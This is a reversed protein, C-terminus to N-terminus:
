GVTALYDAVPESYSYKDFEARPVGHEILARVCGVYDLPAPVAIGDALSAFSITGLVNGDHGHMTRWDAGADLLLRVLDADGQFAALNLATAHWASKVERPWGLELMCRVADIRGIAALDPMLRLQRPSLRDFIQPQEALIQRATAIDARSCAAVFAAGPSLDEALGRQALLDMVDTRGFAAAYAYLSM